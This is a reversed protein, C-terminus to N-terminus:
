FLCFRGHSCGTQCSKHGSRHTACIHCNRPVSVACSGTEALRTCPCEPRRWDGYGADGPTAALCSPTITNSNQPGYPRLQRLPGYGRHLGVRTWLESGPTHTASHLEVAEVPVAALPSTGFALHTSAHEIDDDSNEGFSRIAVDYEGAPAEEFEVVLTRREIGALAVPALFVLNRLTIAGSQPLTQAAGYLLDLYATGPLIAVGPKTRHGDLVWNADGTLQGFFEIKGPSHRVRSLIPLSTYGADQAIAYGMGMGAAMGAAMGTDRWVSWDVAVYRTASTVNRAAAYEDLFTNAAAYDIQGQIGAYASVSSFLLCFEPEYRDVLQELAITGAVKPALVAHCSQLSKMGVLGDDLTGAAHFIGDIATIGAADAVAALDDKTLDVHLVTVTAGLARLRATMQARTSAGDDAVPSRSTLVLHAGYTDALYEATLYGLGGFGGTVLYTAGAKGAPASPEVPTSNFGHLYRTQGRWAVNAEPSVHLEQMLTAALRAQPTNGDFDIWYSTVGALENAFVRAPGAILAAAPTTQTDAGVAFANRTVFVFAVKADGDRNQQWSTVLHFPADFAVQQMRETTASALTEDASWAYVVHSINADARLELVRTYDDASAPDIVFGSDTEAFTAGPTIVTINGSVAALAAPLAPDAAPAFLLCHDFVPPTSLHTVPAPRWGPTYFWDSLPQRGSRETAALTPAQPEIWHTDKQFPYVPLTVRRGAVPWKWADNDVSAGAGWLLGAVNAFVLDAPTPDKPHPLTPIANVAGSISAAAFQALTTGPGAEIFIGHGSEALTIMGQKYRVTRRLHTCWYAPDQAQEDTIWTGTVNSIFPKTPAQPAARRVVEGFEELVDELYHTHGAHSSQIRRVMIDRDSLEAEIELISDTAGALVALEAGNISAVSVDPREQKRADEESLSVAIMTSPPQSAILRGRECMLELASELTFVGAICAAVYEGSSHGIMADPEIGRSMLLQALAYEVCFLAPQTVAIYKLAEAAAGQTHASPDSQGM